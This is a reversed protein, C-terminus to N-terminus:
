SAGTQGAADDIGLIAVLQARGDGVFGGTPVSGVYRPTRTVFMVHEANAEARDIASAPISTVGGDDSVFWLLTGDWRLTTAVVQAADGKRTRGLAKAPLVLLAIALALALVLTRWPAAVFADVSAGWGDAIAGVSIIVVTLVSTLVTVVFGWDVIARSRRSPSLKGAARLRRRRELRTSSYSALTTATGPPVPADPPGAFLTDIAKPPLPGVHALDFLRLGGERQDLMLTSGADYWKVLRGAAVWQSASTSGLEFGGSRISVWSTGAGTSRWRMVMSTTALVEIGIVIALWGAALAANVASLFWLVLGEFAYLPLLSYGTDGIRYRWLLVLVRPLSAAAPVAVSTGPPLFPQPDPAPQGADAPDPVSQPLM